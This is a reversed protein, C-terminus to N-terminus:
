MFPWAILVCIMEYVLEIMRKGAPVIFAVLPFVICLILIYDVTSVGARRHRITGTKRRTVCKM